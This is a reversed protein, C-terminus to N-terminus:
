QSTKNQFCRCDLCIAIESVLSNVVEQLGPLWQKRGAARSTASSCLLDPVQPQKLAPHASSGIPLHASSLSVLKFEACIQMNLLATNQGFGDVLLSGAQGLGMEWPSMYWKACQLLPTVALIPSRHATTHSPEAHPKWAMLGPISKM